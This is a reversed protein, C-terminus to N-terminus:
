LEKKAKKGKKAKKKKKGGGVCSDFVSGCVQAQVAKAEGHHEIVADVIGTLGDDMMAECREYVADRRAEEHRMMSFPCLQDLIGFLSRQTWDGKMHKQRRVEYLADDVVAKCLSCEEGDGADFAYDSAEGKACADVLGGEECAERKRGVLNKVDLDKGLFMAVIKRRVPEHGMMSECVETVQDTMFSERFYKSQCMDRVMNEVEDNYTIAPPASGSGKQEVQDGELSEKSLWKLWQLHFTEVTSICGDCYAQNPESFDVGTGSPLVGLTEGTSKVGSYEYGQAEAATALAM